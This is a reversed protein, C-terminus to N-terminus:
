ILGVQGIREFPLNQHTQCMRTIFPMHSSLEQSTWEIAKTAQTVNPVVNIAPLRRKLTFYHNAYFLNEKVNPVVLQQVPYWLSTLQPSFCDLALIFPNRRKIRGKMVEIFAPRVPVNNVLGGETLRTIGFQGYMKDLLQKMRPDDRLVDYHILGPVASSFGAADLIDAQRTLEDAGFIVERMAEPNSLFEYLISTMRVIRRVRGPRFRHGWSMTDDMLHEYYSLDHKFADVTLGTTCILLPIKCDNFTVARGDKMTFMTDLADRLYLRLTAPVGYRNSIELVRFVKTWRLRRVAEFMPLQDFAESRARFLSLLSGISTGSLMKPQLGARHISQFVGAYGYGCGGGGGSVLILQRQCVEEELAKEDLSSHELLKARECQTEAILKPLSALLGQVPDRRQLLPKLAHLILWRYRSLREQVDVDEGASNRVTILRAFSVIYRLWALTEETITSPNSMAIRVIKAELNNLPRRLDQITKHDLMHPTIM